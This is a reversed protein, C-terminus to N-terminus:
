CIGRCITIGKAVCVYNEKREVNNLFHMVSEGGEEAIKKNKNM